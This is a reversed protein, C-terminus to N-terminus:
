FESEETEEFTPGTITGVQFEEGEADLFTVSIIGDEIAKEVETKYESREKGEVIKPDIFEYAEEWQDISMVVSRDNSNTAQATLNLPIRKEVVPKAYVPITVYVPTKDEYVKKNITIKAQVANAPKNM